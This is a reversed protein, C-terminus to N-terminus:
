TNIPSFIIALFRNLLTKKEEERYYDKEWMLSDEETKNEDLSPDLRDSQLRRSPSLKQGRKGDKKMTEDTESKSRSRKTNKQNDESLQKNTEGSQYQEYINELQERTVGRRMLESAIQQQSKGAQSASKVYQVIQDDTMQQAVVTGCIVFMLSFFLIIRRM